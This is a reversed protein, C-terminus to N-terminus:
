VFLFLFSAFIHCHKCAAPYGLAAPPNVNQRSYPITYFATRNASQPGICASTDFHDYRPQSSIRVACEGPLVRLGAHP